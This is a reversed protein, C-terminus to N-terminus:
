VMNFFVYPSRTLSNYVSVSLKTRSNYVLFKNLSKLKIDWVRSVDFKGEEPSWRDGRNEDLFEASSNKKLDSTPEEFM